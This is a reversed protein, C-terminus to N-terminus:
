EEESVVREIAPKPVTRRGPRALWAEDTTAGNSLTATLRFRELM